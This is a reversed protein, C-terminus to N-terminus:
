RGILWLYELAVQQTTTYVASGQSQAIRQVSGEHDAPSVALEGRQGADDDHPDFSM